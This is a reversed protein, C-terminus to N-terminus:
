ESRRKPKFARLIGSCLVGASVVWVLCVVFGPLAKCLWPSIVFGFLYLYGLLGAALTFKRASVFMKDNGSYDPSKRLSREAVLALFLFFAGTSLFVLACVGAVSRPELNMQSLNLSLRLAHSEGRGPAPLRFYRWTEWVGVCFLVFGPVLFVIRPLFIKPDGTQDPPVKFRVRFGIVAAVMAMRQMIDISPAPQAGNETLAATVSQTIQCNSIRRQGM